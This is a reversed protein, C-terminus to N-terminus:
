ATSYQYLARLASVKTRLRKNANRLDTNEVQLTVNEDEADGLKRKSEENEKQQQKIYKLLQGRSMTSPNKEQKFQWLLSKTSTHIDEDRLWSHLKDFNQIILKFGPHEELEDTIGYFGTVAQYGTIEQLILANTEKMNELRSLMNEVRIRSPVHILTYKLDRQELTYCEDVIISENRLVAHTLNPSSAGYTILFIKKPNSM